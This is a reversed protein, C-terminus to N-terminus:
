SNHHSNDELQLEIYDGDVNCRVSAAKSPTFSAGCIFACLLYLNVNIFSKFCTKQPPYRFSFDICSKKIKKKVRPHSKQLSPPFFMNQLFSQLQIWDYCPQWGVCRPFVLCMSSSYVSCSLATRFIESVRNRETVCNQNPKPTCM